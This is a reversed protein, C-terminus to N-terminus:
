AILRQKLLEMYFDHREDTKNVGETITYATLTKERPEELRYVVERDIKGDELLHVVVPFQFTNVCPCSCTQIWELGAYVGEKGFLKVPQGIDLCNFQQKTRIELSEKRGM